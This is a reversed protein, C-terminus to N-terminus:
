ILRMHTYVKLLNIYNSFILALLNNYIQLLFCKKKLYFQSFHESFRIVPSHIKEKVYWYKEAMSEVVSFFDYDTM